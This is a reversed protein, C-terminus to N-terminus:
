PEHRKRRASKLFTEVERGSGSVPEVTSLIMISEDGFLVRARIRTQANEKYTIGSISFGAQRPEHAISYNKLEFQRLLDSKIEQELERRVRCNTPCKFCEAALFPTAEFSTRTTGDETVLHPNGPFTAAFECASPAYATQAAAVSSWLGAIAFATQRLFDRLLMRHARVVSNLPRGGVAKGRSVRGM